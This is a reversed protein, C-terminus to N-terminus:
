KEATHQVMAHTFPGTFRASADGRPGNTGTHDNWEFFDVNDTPTIRATAETSDIGDPTTTGIARRRVPLPRSRLTSLV